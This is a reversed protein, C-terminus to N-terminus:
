YRFRLQTSHPSHEFSQQIFRHEFSDIKLFITYIFLSVTGIGLSLTSLHLATTDAKSYIRSCTQYVSVIRIASTVSHIKEPFLSSLKCNPVSELLLYTCALGFRIICARWVLVYTRCTIQDRLNYVYRTRGLSLHLNYAYTPRMSQVRVKSVNITRKHPPTFQVHTFYAQLDQIHRTFQARLSRAYVTSTLRTRSTYLTRTVQTDHPHASEPFITCANVLAYPGSTDMCVEIYPSSVPIRVLVQCM